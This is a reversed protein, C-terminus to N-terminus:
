SNLLNKVAGYLNARNGLESRLVVPEPFYIGSDRIMDQRLTKVAESIYEAVVPRASIGGSVIFKEPDLINQLNVIQFAIKRCYERFIKRAQEEGQEVRDFFVTGDVNAEGSAAQYRNMLLGLGNQAAFSNDKLDRDNCTQIASFEGACLHTGRLLKGNSIIGGGIGTGLVLM